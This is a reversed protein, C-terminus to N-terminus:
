LSSYRSFCFHMFYLPCQLRHSEGIDAPGGGVLVRSTIPQSLIIAAIVVASAPELLATISANRARVYASVCSNYLTPGLLKTPLIGFSYIASVPPGASNRFIHRFFQVPLHDIDHNNGLLAQTTGTYYGKLCGSTLIM